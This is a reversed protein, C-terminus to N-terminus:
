IEQADVLLLSVRSRNFRASGTSSPFTCKKRKHVSQLFPLKSSMDLFCSSPARRERTESTNKCTLAVLHENLSLAYQHHGNMKADSKPSTQLM